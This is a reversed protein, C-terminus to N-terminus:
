LMVHVELPVHIVTSTCTRGYQLVATCLPSQWMAMYLKAVHRCVRLFWLIESLGIKIRKQFRVQSFITWTYTPHTEPVDMHHPHTLIAFITSRPCANSGSWIEPAIQPLLVSSGPRELSFRQIRPRGINKSGEYIM